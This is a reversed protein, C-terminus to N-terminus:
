LRSVHLRSAAFSRSFFHKEAEHCPPRLCLKGTQWGPRLAETYPSITVDMICLSRISNFDELGVVTGANYEQDFVTHRHKCRLRISGHIEADEPRVPRYSLRSATPMGYGRRVWFALAEYCLDTFTISTDVAAIAVLLLKRPCSMGACGSLGPRSRDCSTRCFDAEEVVFTVGLLLLRAAASSHLRLSARCSTLM